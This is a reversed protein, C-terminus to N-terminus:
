AGRADLDRRVDEALAEGYHLAVFRLGVERSSAGPLRRALGARSLAMVTRSLSLTLRLRKAPSARRLLEMQVRRAEPATDDDGRM